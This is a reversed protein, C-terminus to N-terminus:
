PPRGLQIAKRKVYNTPEGAHTLHLQAFLRPVLGPPSEDGIINMVTRYPLPEDDYFADLRDEDDELPTAFEIHPQNAPPPTATPSSSSTAASPAM